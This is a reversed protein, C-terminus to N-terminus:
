PPFCTKLGTATDWLCLIQFIPCGMMGEITPYIDKLGEEDDINIDRRHNEGFGGKYYMTAYRYEQIQENNKESSHALGLLHGLEHTITSFVDLQTNDPKDSFGGVYWPKVKKQGSTPSM